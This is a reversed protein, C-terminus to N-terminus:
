HHCGPKEPVGVAGALVRRAEIAGSEIFSLIEPREQPHADRAKTCQAQIELLTGCASEILRLYHQEQQRWSKQSVRCLRLQFVNGVLSVLTIAFSVIQPVTM